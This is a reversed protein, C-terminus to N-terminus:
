LAVCKLIEVHGEVYVVAQTLFLIGYDAVLFYRNVTAVIFWEVQMQMAEVVSEPLQIDGTFIFTVITLTCNM